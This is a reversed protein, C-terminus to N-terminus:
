KLGLPIEGTQEFPFQPVSDSISLNGSLRYNVQRKFLTTVADVGGGLFSKLNSAVDVELFEEGSAPITISEKSEGEAFEKDNIQLKYNLGTVPIPVPNPNKLRLKIRYKEASIQKFDAVSVEPKAQDLSTPMNACATLLGLFLLLITKSINHM